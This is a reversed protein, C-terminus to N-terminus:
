RGRGGRGPETKQPKPAIQDAAPRGDDGAMDQLVRCARQRVRQDPDEASIRNVRRLVSQLQLREILWLASIRHASSDDGLMDLLAGAAERLELRLLSRIANARVRSNNSNLKPITEAARDPVDLQDLTEVANAQVRPDPDSLAARLIRRSTSGPLKALLAVALSRVQPDGDYALHYIKESLEDAMELERVRDLANVRDSSNSSALQARLRVAVDHAGSWAPQGGRDQAAHEVPTEQARGM